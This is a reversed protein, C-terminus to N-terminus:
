KIQELAKRAAAAEPANPSLELFKKLDAKAGETDSKQLRVLARYYYADGSQPFRAIAKEFYALAEEPKAQNLLGIGVNVFTTPDKVAADDVSALVQRGEEARGQEILINGLLLKNEIAAPNKEVAIKLHEIAKDFQKEGYYTRAILPEVQYAQPYKALIGEYIGRAEAFKKENLLAAAKVLDSQIVQNPDPASQKLTTPIPPVRTLEEIVVTIRVPEYGPKEFDVNWAGRAIGGLAWEGKKDTKAQTGGAGPLELKITVGEIPKGQEDTVKGAMRGMGRWGQAHVAAPTILAVLLALLTIRLFTNM